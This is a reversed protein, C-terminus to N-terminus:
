SCSRTQSTSIRFQQMTCVDLHQEATPLWRSRARSSSGPLWLMIYRGQAVLVGHCRAGYCSASHLPSGSSSTPMAVVCHSIKCGVLWLCRFRLNLVVSSFMVPVGPVAANHRGVARMMAILVYGNGLVWCLVLLCHESGVAVPVLVHVPEPARMCQSLIQNPRVCLLLCAHLAVAAIAYLHAM